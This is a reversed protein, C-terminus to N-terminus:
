AIGSCTKLIYWRDRTRPITTPSHRSHATNHNLFAEHAAGGFWVGVCRPVEAVVFWGLFPRFALAFDCGDLFDLAESGLTRLFGDRAVFGM